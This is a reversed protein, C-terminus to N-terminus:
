NLWSAWTVPTHKASKGWCNAVEVDAVTSISLDVNQGKLETQYIKLSNSFSINTCICFFFNTTTESKFINRLFKSCLSLSEDFDWLTTQHELFVNQTYSFYLNDAVWLNFVFLPKKFFNEGSNILSESKWFGVSIFISADQVITKDDSM